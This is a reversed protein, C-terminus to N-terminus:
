TCVGKTGRTNTRSSRVTTAVLYDADATLTNTSTLSNQSDRLSDSWM